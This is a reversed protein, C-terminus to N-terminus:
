EGLTIQNPAINEFVRYVTAETLLREIFFGREIESVDGGLKIAVVPHEQISGYRAYSAVSARSDADQSMGAARWAEIEDGTVGVEFLVVIEAPIDVGGRVQGIRAFAQRIEDPVVAVCKWKNDHKVWVDTMRSSSSFSGFQGTKGKSSWQGAVIATNGYFRIVLNDRASETYTVGMQRHMEAYVERTLGESTFYDDAFVETAAEYDGNLLAEDWAHLQSRIAIGDTKRTKETEMVDAHVSPFSAGASLLLLCTGIRWFDM